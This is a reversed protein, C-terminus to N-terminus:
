AVDTEKEKWLEGRRLQSGLQFSVASFSTGTKEWAFYNVYSIELQFISSFRSNGGLKRSMAWAWVLWFPLFDWSFTTWSGRFVARWVTTSLSRLKALVFRPVMVWLPWSWWTIGFAQADFLHVWLNSTCQKGQRKLHLIPCGQPCMIAHKPHIYQIGFPMSGAPLHCSPNKGDM